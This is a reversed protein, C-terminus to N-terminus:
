NKNTPGYIKGVIVTVKESKNGADDYSYLTVYTNQKIFESLKATFIGKEDTIVNMNLKKGDTIVVHAGAEAKGTIEMDKHTIPDVDPVLPPTVDKVTVTTAESTNGANDTATLSLVTGATQSNISIAFTGTESATGTAIISGNATIDVKAGAEATGKVQSSQDTVEEVKPAEPATVDKVTVTTEASKNGAKDTATTGSVHVYPGIKVARSYSVIQEWRTGSSFNKRQMINTGSMITWM